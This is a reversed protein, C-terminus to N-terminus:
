RSHDELYRWMEDWNRCEHPNDWGVVLVRGNARVPSELSMDGACMLAQRVYDFCHAIHWLGHTMASFSPNSTDSPYEALLDAPSIRGEIVDWFM